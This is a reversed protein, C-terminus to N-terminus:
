LMGAATAGSKGQLEDAQKMVSRMMAQMSEVTATVMNGIAEAGGGPQDLDVRICYLMRNADPALGFCGHRGAPTRLNHALLGRLIELENEPPFEGYDVVVTAGSPDAMGYHLLTIPVSGVEFTKGALMENADLGTWGAFETVAAQFKPPVAQAAVMKENLKSVFDVKAAFEAARRFNDSNMSDSTGIM